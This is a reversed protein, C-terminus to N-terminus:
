PHDKQAMRQQLQRWEKQTLAQTLFELREEPHLRDWYRVIYDMAIEQLRTRRPQAHDGLPEPMVYEGSLLSPMPLPIVAWRPPFSGLWDRLQDEEDM